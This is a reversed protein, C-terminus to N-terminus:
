SRSIDIAKVAQVTGRRTAFEVTLNRVELLPTASM